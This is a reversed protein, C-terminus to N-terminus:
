GIGMQIMAPDITAGIGYKNRFEQELQARYMADQEMMEKEMATTGGGKIRMADEALKMGVM